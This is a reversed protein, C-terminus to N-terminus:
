TEGGAIPLAEGNLAAAQDSCLFVVAAAVEESAVLRGQPNNRVLAAVAQERTRGTTAQINRITNEVIDTATYGPCVANVTVGTKATEAALARVCGVLAHKAACYATLYSYGKTGAMSAVAVIRGRGTEVMGPLVARVAHVFGFLNVDLMNRMMEDGTRLFTASAAAGASAVLMDVPGRQAAAEAVAQEVSAMETVDAIAYGAAVGNGVAEELVSRTRGVVTVTAGAMSLSAAVARGIGTGGGTVLAHRGALGFLGETM